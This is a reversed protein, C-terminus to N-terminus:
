NGTYAMAINFMGLVSFQQQQYFKAKLEGRRILKSSQVLRTLSYQSM